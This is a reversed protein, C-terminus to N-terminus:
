LWGHSRYWEVTDRVGEELTLSERYGLERMAKEVSCTWFGQTIDRGKEYDLIPAKKM